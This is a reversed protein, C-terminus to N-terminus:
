SCISFAGTGLGWYVGATVVFAVAMVALATWGPPGMVALAPGIGVITIWEFTAAAKVFQIASYNQAFCALDNATGFNQPTGQRSPEFPNTNSPEGSPNTMGSRWDM